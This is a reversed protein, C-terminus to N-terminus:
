IFTEFQIRRDLRTLVRGMTSKHELDRFNDFRIKNINEMSLETGGYWHLAVTSSCINDPFMMNYLKDMGHKYHYPYVVSMSINYVYLGKIDSPNPYMDRIMDAGLCQYDSPDYKVKCAELLSAYFETGKIAALVGISYYGRKKPRPHTHCIMIDTELPVKVEAIPKLWLVDTDCWLGGFHYLAYWRVYDSKHVDHARLLTIDGFPAHKVEDVLEEASKIFDRGKYMVKQMHEDWSAEGSISDENPRYLVIKWEPHFYKFTVLTLFNLFPLLQAGWYFHAIKPIKHM